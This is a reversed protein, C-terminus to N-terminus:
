KGVIKVYEFLPMGFFDQTKGSRRFGQKEYFRMARELPATTDLTIRRCGKARLETEARALLRRAIGTGQWKSLVAMGRLHGEEQDIVSCAVTGAIVGQESVAVFVTMSKLRQALTEPRLVTDLFGQPTYSKRYPEFAEALCQLIGAADAITAKRIEFTM